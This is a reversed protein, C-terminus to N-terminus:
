VGKSKKVGLKRRFFTIISDHEEVQELVPRFQKLIRDEAESLKKNIKQTTPGDEELLDMQEKNTLMSM